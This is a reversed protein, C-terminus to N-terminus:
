IDDINKGDLQWKTNMDMTILLIEDIMERANFMQSDYMKQM